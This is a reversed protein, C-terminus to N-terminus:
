RARIDTLVDHIRVECTRAQYDGVFYPRMSAQVEAFADSGLWDALAEATEWLGLTFGGHEDETDRVLWREKIGVPPQVSLRGYLEEFADWTGPRVHGRGVRLIV